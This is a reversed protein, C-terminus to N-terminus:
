KPMIYWWSTNWPKGNHNTHDPQIHKHEAYKALRDKCTPNPWVFDQDYNDAILIGGVGSEFYDIAWHMVMDRFIGDVSIIQYPKNCGDLFSTEETWHLLGNALQFRDCEAQAHGIWGQNTEVTDVWRCRSRLWATGLGAGFELWNYEKLDQKKLWDLFPHTFWPYVLGTQSEEIQFDVLDPRM